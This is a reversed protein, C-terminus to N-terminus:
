GEALIGALLEYSRHQKEEDYIYSVAMIEDFELHQQLQGLRHRVSVPSGIFSMATMDDVVAKEQQYLPIGKFDVPGFHPATRATQHQQWLTNEDPLPPQLDQQANTIVNLFFQTQTTALRRAEEDSDALIVNAGVILYPEALSASPKFLRRYIDAAEHLMRPAFHSAFAYPLGLEAALYASETSSGLIYVPVDLGAAPYAHVLATDAFYSRMEAIDAPFDHHLNHRRLARATRQDTGPARGLGLEVRNPYLTALTGYQEAVIYPSHNPLMVGGSGVKLTATNALTHQILLQTASSALNKMNHHEAIWYRAAGLREATQALRVMAAMADAYSGGARRPVLNLVSFRPM